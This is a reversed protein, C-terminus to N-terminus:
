VGFDSLEIRKFLIEPAPGLSHGAPLEAAARPWTWDASGVGLSARIKEGAFPLFPSLLVGLTRTIQICTHITTATQDRDTKRSKWPAAADIYRNAARFGDMVRGLASKFRCADLDGGVSDVLARIEALVAREPEGLKVPAPVSRGFDEGAIKQWRNVFNGLTAILESNNREVFAEFDWATRQSEPAIATLYYRLPDPDLTKLYDEIWVATGRSKSMKQEDRGPFVINVFANAVVNAPLQYHDRDAAPSYHAGVAIQAATYRTGLIMAPWILAHFVINDEGIFHVIRCDPNCWWDRYAEVPEGRRRCLEATFTVYGIPADFWVYLVKNAADPEALPVPVGWALDRTMAREPLGENISARSFNTVITRWDAAAHDFWEHLLREFKGLQLYWHTTARVEPRTGSLTSVPDRLLLPDINRGCAECQDGYADPRGCDAHHCTGKVYRDPLFRQAQVDFLQQSTRKVFHGNDHNRRFFDQSLRTHTEVFDPQHTGGYIDFQIGLGAFDTRQRANYRASLEAPAVGEKAAAIEIAVGNDDSGCIFRVEDGRSRLYRVYIDAPLYAGAIHGVHLRGNSYPLAATVLFRRPM